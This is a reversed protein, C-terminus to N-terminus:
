QVTIPLNCAQELLNVRNLWGSEFTEDGPKNEGLWQYFAVRQRLIAEALPQAGHAAIYTHYADSTDTDFQRTVIIGLATQLWKIAQGIGTNVASDFMVMDVPSDLYDGHVPEWYNDRYIEEREAISILRVTQEPLGKARRYADYERQIIGYMTAGGSDSPNDSWGGERALVFVMCAQFRPIM